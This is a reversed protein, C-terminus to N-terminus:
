VSPCADTGVRREESRRFFNLRIAFEQPDNGIMDKIAVPRNGAKTDTAMYVAGFGGMKLLKDLRYRGALLTGGAIPLPNGCRQCIPLACTQVGTVLPTR